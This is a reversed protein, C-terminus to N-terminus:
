QHVRAPGPRREARMASGHLAEGPSVDPALDDDHQITEALRGARRPRANTTRGLHRIVALELSGSNQRASGHLHFDLGMSMGSSATVFVRTSQTIANAIAQLTESPLRAALAITTPTDLLSNAAAIAFYPPTPVVRFPVGPNDRNWADVIKHAIQACTFRGPDRRLGAHELIAVGWPADKVELSPAVAPTEEYAFLCGTQMQVRDVAMRLHVTDLPAAQSDFALLVAPLLRCLLLSRSVDM